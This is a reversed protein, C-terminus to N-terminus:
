RSEVVTVVEGAGRASVTCTVLPGALGFTYARARPGPETAPRAGRARMSADLAALIVDARSASEYVFVGRRDGVVVSLSRTSSPPRPALRPDSGPADGEGAWALRDVRLPGKARLSLRTVRGGEERTVFGYELDGLDALDGSAAFRRVAGRVDDGGRRFCLVVGERESGRRLGLGRSPESCSKELRGLEEDVTGAVLETSLVLAEGNLVVDIAGPPAGSLEHGLALGARGADAAAVRGSHAATVVLAGLLWAGARLAGRHRDRRRPDFGLARLAGLVFVLAFM